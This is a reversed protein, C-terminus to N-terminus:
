SRWCTNPRPSTTGQALLWFERPAHGAAALQESLQRLFAVQPEPGGRGDLHIALELGTGLQRAGEGVNRLRRISSPDSELVDVRLHSLNLAALRAVEAESLKDCQSSWGLGIAPLPGSEQRVTVKVSKPLPDVTPFSLNTTSRMPAPTRAAVDSHFPREAIRLRVEQQVRTGARIEVPFPLRLPTCYTKFSADTWNRQDETEFVDGSFSLEAWRDPEFEHALGVLDHLGDVPQRASIVSPFAVERSTGDFYDARCRGGACGRIPHLVSFGIRNRRFTSKALGDFHLRISGDAM